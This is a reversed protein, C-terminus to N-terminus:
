CCCYSIYGPSPSHKRARQHTPPSSLAHVGADASAVRWTVRRQAHQMAHCVAAGRSLLSLLCKAGSVRWNYENRVDEAVNAGQLARFSANTHQLQALHLLRQRCAGRVM